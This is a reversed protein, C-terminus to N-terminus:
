DAAPAGEGDGGSGKAVLLPTYVDWHQATLFGHLGLVVAVTALGAAAPDLAVHFGVINVIIPALLVLALPVFFGSLLLAGCVTETLAVLTMVYGSDMLAAIFAGGKESMEPEPMFGLFKNLGFVFFLLGLLIRAVLVAKEKM